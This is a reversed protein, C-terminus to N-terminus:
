KTSIYKELNAVKAFLIIIVIEIDCTKDFILVCFIISPPQRGATQIAKTWDGPRLGHLNICKFLNNKKYM